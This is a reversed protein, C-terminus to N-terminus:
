VRKIRRHYSSRARNNYHFNPPSLLKPHISTVMIFLIGFPFIDIDVKIRSKTTMTLRSDFYFGTLCRRVIMFPKIFIPDIERRIQKRNM